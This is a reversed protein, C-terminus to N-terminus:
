FFKLKLNDHQVSRHSLLAIQTGFPFRARPERRGSFEGSAAQCTM